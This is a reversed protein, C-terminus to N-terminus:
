SVKLFHQPGCMFLSKVNRKKSFTGTAMAVAFQYIIIGVLVAKQFNQVETITVRLGYKAILHKVLNFIQIFHYHNLSFIM